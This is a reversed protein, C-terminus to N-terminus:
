NASQSLGEDRTALVDYHRTRGIRQFQNFGVKQLYQEIVSPQCWRLDVEYFVAQARALVGAEDLQRIVTLEMGEVDIKIICNSVDALLTTLDKANYTIIKEHYKGDGRAATRLSAAGSHRPNVEIVQAGQEHAIAARVMTVKHNLRNIWFNDNLYAFNSAIPEFSFVADSSQQQAALLSFLGQNAGIDIFSYSSKQSALVNALAKGYTGLLCFHFTADTWRTRLYVGYVSRVCHIGDIMQYLKNRPIIGSVPAPKPEDTKRSVRKLWEPM